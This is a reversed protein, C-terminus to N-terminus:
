VHQDAALWVDVISVVSDMVPSPNEQVLHYKGIKQADETNLIKSITNRSIGTMKSIGSGSIGEKFFLHRIYDSQPVTIMGKEGASRYNLGSDTYLIFQNPHNMNEHANQSVKLKVFM